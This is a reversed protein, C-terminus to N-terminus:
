RGAELRERLALAAAPNRHKAGAIVYAFVEHRRSWGRLRGAWGDLAAGPYGAPQDDVTRQLRLYLFDATQPTEEPAAAGEKDLMVLAINRARLLRESAESAFSEHAAEVAHRLEHRGLRPPLLDLFRSFAPEDFRRGAPLQWLIPGLRDGLESLGSGLFREIAPAAAEPDTRIAAARAAKVSFVFGDPVAEAWGRFTQPTQTRYFTANIEISNLRSAAYALEDTHRLGEPYFTERWPAFSWGGIGIRVPHTM